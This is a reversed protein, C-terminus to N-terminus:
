QYPASQTRFLYIIKFPINVLSIKPRWLLNEFYQILLYDQQLLTLHKIVIGYLPDRGVETGLRRRLKSISTPGYFITLYNPRIKEASVFIVTIFLDYIPYVKASSYNSFVNVIQYIKKECFGICRM